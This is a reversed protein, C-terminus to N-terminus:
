APRKMRVMQARDKVRKENQLKSLKDYIKTSQDEISTKIYLDLISDTKHGSMAKLERTDLLGTNYLSTIGTRRATHSTIMAYKPKIAIGNEDREWLHIGDMCCRFTMFWRYSSMEVETLKEGRQRRALLTRYHEEAELEVKTLRTAYKENMSPVTKALKICVRELITNFVSTTIQPFHYRNRECAEIVRDDFIPIEVYTGTKQQTLSIIPVGNKNKRFMSKNIRSFDSFRQCTKCGIFFLDRVVAENGDLEMNYLADLEEDTMYISTRKDTLSLTRSKWCSLSYANSNKGYDSAMVCLKHMNGVKENVTIPFYKMKKLYQYFKDVFFKDIGEFTMHEDVVAYLVSRFGKWQKVSNKAYPRGNHHDISGDAIGKLFYEYFALIHNLNDTEAETKHIYSERNVINDIAVQFVKKDESTKGEKILKNVCAAVDDMLRKVRSGDTARFSENGDDDIFRKESTYESWKTPSQIASEWKNVEVSIGTWITMSVGERSFRYYLNGHTKKGTVRLFFGKM